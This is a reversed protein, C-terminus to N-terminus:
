MKKAAILFHKIIINVPDYRSDSDRIEDLVSLVMELLGFWKIVEGNEVGGIYRQVYSEFSSLLNGEERFDKLIDQIKIIEGGVEEATRRAQCILNQRRLSERELESIEKEDM